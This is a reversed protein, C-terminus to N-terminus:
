KKIVDAKSVGKQKIGVRRSWADALQLVEAVPANVRVVKMTSDGLKGDAADKGVIAAWRHHGDIVYNDKSIFIPDAAPDYGKDNTMMWGVNSGVLQKQSPKLNAVPIDEDSTRMGIGQLYAKFFPAGDVEGNAKKPFRDAELGPITKGGIQPMELRDVGSTYTKGGFTVERLGDSCFLNTGAVTVNCLDYDKAEKKQAAAENAMQALKEVLSHADKVSPVEVVLGNQIMPIAEEVSKAKIPIPRGTKADVKQKWTVGSHAFGGPSQWSGNDKGGQASGRGGEGGGSDTFKGDDARPHQSEDWNGDLSRLRYIPVARIWGDTYRTAAARLFREGDALTYRRHHVVLGKELEHRLSPIDTRIVVSGNARLAAVGVTKEGGMQHVRFRLGTIMQSERQTVNYFVVRGDDFRVKAMTAHDKDVPKWNDDIYMVTGHEGGITIDEPTM